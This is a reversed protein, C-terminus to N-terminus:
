EAGIYLSAVSGYDRKLKLADELTYLVAGIFPLGRPGPPLNRPQKFLIYAMLVAILAGALHWKFAIVFPIFEGLYSSDRTLTTLIAM